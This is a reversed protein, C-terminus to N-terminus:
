MAVDFLVVLGRQYFWDDKGFKSFRIPLLPMGGGVWGGRKCGVTLSDLSALKISM